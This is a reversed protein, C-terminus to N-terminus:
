ASENEFLRRQQETLFPKIAKFIESWYQNIFEDTVEGTEKRLLSDQLFDVDQPKRKYSIELRYYRITGSELFLNYCDLKFSTIVGTKYGQGDGSCAPEFDKPIQISIEKEQRQQRLTHAIANRKESTM